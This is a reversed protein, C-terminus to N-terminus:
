LLGFKKALKKVLNNIEDQSLEDPNRGKYEKLNLEALKNKQEDTIIRKVTM